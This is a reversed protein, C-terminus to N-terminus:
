QDPLTIVHCAQWRSSRPIGVAKDHLLARVDCCRSGEMSGSIPLVFGWGIDPGAIRGKVWHWLRTDRVMSVHWFARVAVLTLVNWTQRTVQIGVQLHFRLIRGFALEVSLWNCPTMYLLLYVNWVHRHPFTCDQPAVITRFFPSM